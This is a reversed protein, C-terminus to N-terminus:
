KTLKLYIWTTKTIESYPGALDTFDNPDHNDVYDWSKTIKKELQYFTANLNAEEIGFFL